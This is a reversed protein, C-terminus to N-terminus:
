ITASKPKSNDDGANDLVIGNGKFRTKGGELDLSSIANFAARVTFQDLDASKVLVTSKDACGTWSATNVTISISAKQFITIACSM